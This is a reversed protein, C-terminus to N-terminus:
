NNRFHFLTIKATKSKKKVKPKSKKVTKKRKGAVKKNIAM